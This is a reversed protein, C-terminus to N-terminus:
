GHSAGLAQRAAQVAALATPGAGVLEWERDNINGSERHVRWEVADDDDDGYIPSYHELSLNPRETLWAWAGEAEGASQLARETRVASGVLEAIKVARQDLAALALALLFETRAVHEQMLKVYTPWQREWSRLREEAEERAEAPSLLALIRDAKALARDQRFRLRKGAEVSVFYDPEEFAEADIERAVEVRAEAEASQLAAQLERINLEEM